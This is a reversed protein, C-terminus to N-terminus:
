LEHVTTDPQPIGWYPASFDRLAGFYTGTLRFSYQSCIQRYFDNAEELDFPLQICGSFQFLVDHILSAALTGHFDPTGLWVDRGLIRYGRKPSSGNWSYGSPITAAKSTLYLWEKGEVRFSRRSPCPIIPANFKYVMPVLTKFRYTGYGEVVSLRRFDAGEVLAPAMVKM